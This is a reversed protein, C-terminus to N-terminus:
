YWLYKNIQIIRNSRASYNNIHLMSWIALLWSHLGIPIPDNVARARVHQLPNLVPDKCHVMSESLLNIRNDQICHLVNDAVASVPLSHSVSSVHYFFVILIACIHVLSACILSICLVHMSFWLLPCGWQM